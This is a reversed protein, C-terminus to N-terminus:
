WPDRQLAPGFVRGEFALRWLRAARGLFVGTFLGYLAAIVLTFQADRVVSPQVAVDVNVIYRTLFIGLITALPVWSGPLFYTSTARDYRTGAPPESMGIAAFAVAAVLMWVLMLYGFMPSAGFAGWIGWVSLATMVVPTIAVRALGVSRDRLQSAGLWALGALLGWVWTPTNRLATGIMQPHELLVPIHM